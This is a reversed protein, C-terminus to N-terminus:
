TARNPPAQALIARDRFSWTATVQRTPVLTTDEFVHSQRASTKVESVSTSVASGEVGAGPATTKHQSYCGQHDRLLRWLCEERTTLFQTHKSSFKDDLGTPDLYNSLRGENRRTEMKKQEFQWCELQSPQNPRHDMSVSIVKDSLQNMMSLTRKWIHKRKTIYVPHSDEFDNM